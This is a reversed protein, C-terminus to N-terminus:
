NCPVGESGGGGGGSEFNANRPIKCNEYPDRHM